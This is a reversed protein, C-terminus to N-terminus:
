PRGLEIQVFTQYRKNVKQSVKQKLHVKKVIPSQQMSKGKKFFM